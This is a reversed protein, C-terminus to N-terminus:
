LFSHRLAGFSSNKKESGLYQFRQEHNHGIDGARNRGKKMTTHVQRQKEEGYHSLEENKGIYQSGKENNHSITDSIGTM